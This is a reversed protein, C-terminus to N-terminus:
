PRASQIIATVIAVLVGAMTLGSAIAAWMGKPTVHPRARIKAIESRANSIDATHERALERIRVEHDDVDKRLDAVEAVRAANGLEVAQTLTNISGKLEAMGTDFKGELRAVVQGFESVAETYTRDTTM